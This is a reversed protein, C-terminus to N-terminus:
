VKVTTDEDQLRLILKSSIDSRTSSEPVVDYLTRLLKM